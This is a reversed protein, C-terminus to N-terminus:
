VVSKRDIGRPLAVHITRLDYEKLGKWSLTSPGHLVSGPGTDLVAALM